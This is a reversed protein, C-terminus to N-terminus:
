HWGGYQKTPDGRFGTTTKNADPVGVTSDAAMIMNTHTYGGLAKAKKAIITTLDNIDYKKISTYIVVSTLKGKETSKEDYSFTLLLPLETGAPIKIAYHNDKLQVSSVLSGKSDTARIEGSYISGKKNRVKGKLTTEKKYIQTKQKINFNQKSKTDSNNCGSLFFSLSIIILLGTLFKFSEAFNLTNFNM